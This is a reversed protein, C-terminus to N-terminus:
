QIFLTAQQAEDTYDVDLLKPNENTIMTENTYGYCINPPKENTTKRYVNIHKCTCAYINTYVYM